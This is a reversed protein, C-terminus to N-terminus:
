GVVGDRGLIGEGLVDEGLVGQEIGGRRAKAEGDLALEIVVAKDEAVGIAVRAKADTVKAATAQGTFAMATGVEGDGIFRDHGCTNADQGSGGAADEAGAVTDGIAANLGFALDSVKFAGFAAVANDDVVAITPFGVVAMQPLVRKKDFGAILDIAAIKQTKDTTGTEARERVDVEADAELLM